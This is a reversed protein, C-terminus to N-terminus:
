WDAEVVYFNGVLWRAFVEAYRRYDNAVTAPHGAPDYVLWRRTGGFVFGGEGWDFSFRKSASDPSIAIEVRYWPYFIFLHIYDGFYPEKL